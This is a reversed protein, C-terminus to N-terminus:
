QCGEVLVFYNGDFKPNKVSYHLFLLLDFFPREGNANIMNM